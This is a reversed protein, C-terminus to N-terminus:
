EGDVSLASTECWQVLSRIDPAIVDAALQLDVVDTCAVLRVQGDIKKRVESATKCLFQLAESTRGTVVLVMLGPSGKWIRGLLKHLELDFFMDASDSLDGISFVRWGLSRLLAVASEAYLVSEPDTAMVVSHKTNHPSCFEMGILQLSRLVMDQLSRLELGGMRGDAHMRVLAEAAPSVVETVMGTPNASSHMCSRILSFLGQEDAAILMDHYRRAALFYDDPFSYAFTGREMYWIVINGTSRSRIIRQRLFSELYKSLTVRNIGTKRALETGSLGAEAGSLASRVRSWVETEGYGHGM